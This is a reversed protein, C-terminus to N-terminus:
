RKDLRRCHWRWWRRRIEEQYVERSIRAIRDITSQPYADIVPHFIRRGWPWLRHADIVRLPVHETESNLARRFLSALHANPADGWWPRHSHDRCLPTGFIQAYIPIKYELFGLEPRPIHAYRALFLRPLCAVIFEGCLPAQDFSYEQGVFERFREYECREQSGPRTYYWWSEVESIPRLGSLLLEDKQLMSVQNQLNDFILMDWQAVFITDWDLAHGRDAFWRSIM